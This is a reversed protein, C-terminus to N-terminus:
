LKVRLTNPKMDINREIKHGYFYSKSIHRGAKFEPLGDINHEIIDWASPNKEAIFKRILTETKM